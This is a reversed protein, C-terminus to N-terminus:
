CHVNWDQGNQVGGVVYQVYLNTGGGFSTRCFSRAGSATSRGTGYWTFRDHRWGGTITNWMGVNSYFGILKGSRQMGDRMGRLFETNDSQSNGFINGATNEEVDIWIAGPRLRNFNIIQLNYKAAEQGCAYPTYAGRARCGASPYNTGVYLDYNRFKAIERLLCSNANFNLQSGNLGVIGFNHRTSTLNGCQPSSIDVFPANDAAADRSKKANYAFLLGGTLLLLIPLIILLRPTKLKFKVKSKPKKQKSKM